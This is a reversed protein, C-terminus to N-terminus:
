NSKNMGIQRYRCGGCGETLTEESMQGVCQMYRVITDLLQNNALEATELFDHNEELSQEIIETDLEENRDEIKKM